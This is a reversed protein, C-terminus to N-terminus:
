SLFPSKLGVAAAAARSASFAGKLLAIQPEDSLGKLVVPARGVGCRGIVLSAATMGTALAREQSLGEASVEGEVGRVWDGAVFANAFSTEQRPRSLLSGPSFATVAGRARAVCADVLTADRFGPECAELNARTQKVLAEDPLALLQSAGYYDSAICGEAGPRMYEDQIQNLNFFTGGTGQGSFGALVNAPFRTERPSDFWLRVSVCDITKLALTRAFEDRTGLSQQNGLVLNQMGKVGVAFVVADLDGVSVKENTERNTGHVAVISNTKEDVDVREVAVGGLIRGSNERIRDALPAFIKEAISGRCWRVDFSAQTKLAYYYLANLTEAASLNEPSAFLAVLLTPELFDRYVAETVGLRKFLERATMKDLVEYRERSSRVDAAAAVIPLVSARDFLSLTRFYDRTHFAQGLPTPLRPLKSFVPAENILRATSPSSSSSTSSSSSSTSSSSSSSSRDFLCSFGGGTKRGPASWFGSTTYDTLCDSVGLDLLCADINPYDYWM